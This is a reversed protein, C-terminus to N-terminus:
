TNLRKRSRQGSTDDIHIIDYSDMWGFSRGSEIYKGLLNEEGGLVTLFKGKDIMEKAQLYRCFDPSCETFGSSSQTV